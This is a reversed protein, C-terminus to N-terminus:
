VGGKPIPPLSQVKKAVGRLVKRIFLYIFLVLWLPDSIWSSFRSFGNLEAGLSSVVSPVLIEILSGSVISLMVTSRM